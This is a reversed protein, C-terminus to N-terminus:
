TGGSSPPAQEVPLDKKAAGGGFWHEGWLAYAGVAALALIAVIMVADPWRSRRFRRAPDAASVM